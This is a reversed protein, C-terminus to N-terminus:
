PARLLVHVASTQLARQSRRAGRVVLDLSGTGTASLVEGTAADLVYRMANTGSGEVRTTDEGRVALGGLATVGARTVILVGAGGLREYGTVKFHRKSNVDLRVGDRCVPFTGSDSWERGLSLSDPARVLVERIVSLPVQDPSTCPDAPAPRGVPSSQAGPRTEAAAFAYPLVVGPLAVSGTGLAGVMVSRILGTLGSSPITRVSADVVLSSSDTQPGTSDIATTVRARQEIRYERALLGPRLVWSRPTEDMPAPQPHPPSIAQEPVRGRCALATAVLLFWRFVPLSNGSRYAPNQRLWCSRIIMERPARDGM